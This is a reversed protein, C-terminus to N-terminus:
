RLDVVKARPYRSKPFTFSSAPLKAGRRINTVVVTSRGGGRATLDLRVPQLDSARLCLVATRVPNSANRPTLQVAYTGPINSKVLKATYENKYSSLMAYPNMSAIEGPTPHSITVERESADYTWLTKGDYWSSLSATLVSFQRGKVNLTGQQSGGGTKVTYTATISGAKLLSSAAKALISSATPAAAHALGCWM